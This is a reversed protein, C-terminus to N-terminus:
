RSAEPEIDRSRDARVALEAPHMAALATRLERVQRPTACNWPEPHWRGDGAELVEAAAELLPTMAGRPNAAATQVEAAAQSIQALVARGHLDRAYV